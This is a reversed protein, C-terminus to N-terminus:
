GPCASAHHRREAHHAAVVLGHTVHFQQRADDVPPEVHLFREIRRSAERMVIDELDLRQERGFDLGFQPAAAMPDRTGDNREAAALDNPRIPLTPRQNPSRVIALVAVGGAKSPLAHSHWMTTEETVGDPISPQRRPDAARLVLDKGCPFTGGDSSARTSRRM